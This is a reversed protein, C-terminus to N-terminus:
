GCSFSYGISYCHTGKEGSFCFSREPFQKLFHFTMAKESTQRKVWTLWGAWRVWVSVVRGQYVFYSFFLWQPTGSAGITIKAKFIRGCLIIRFYGNVELKFWSIGQAWARNGSAEQPRAIFQGSYVPFYRKCLNSFFSKPIKETRFHM